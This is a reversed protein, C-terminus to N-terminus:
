PRNLKLTPLNWAERFESLVEWAYPINFSFAQRCEAVTALARPSTTDSATIRLREEDFNEGFLELMTACYYYFAALEKGLRPVASRETMQEGDRPLGILDLMFQSQRLLMKSSLAVGERPSELGSSWRLIRAFEQDDELFGFMIRLTADSKLRLEKGLLLRTLDALEVVRNMHSLDLLSRAARILDRPLGGSFCYCLAVFPIPLGVIRRGLLRRAADFDLYGVKIVEDLASDFVDRFPMGRREFSAIADDSVSILYHCRRMGFIAKIDNIFLQVKDESNIKDLEDIGIIVPRDVAAESAFRRFSGVIEPFTKPRSAWTMSRTFNADAGIPLKLGGSWGSSSSQQFQIERLESQARQRLRERSEEPRRETPRISEKKPEDQRSLEILVYTLLLFALGLLALFSTGLLQILILGSGILASITAYRRFKFRGPPEGLQRNISQVVEQCIEAYLHLIFERAEYEVPAAVLVRFNRPDVANENSCFSRLLTTKGVGRPGSVGISGGHMQSLMDRIQESARTPIEQAPDSLESLGPVRTTDLTTLYSPQRALHDDLLQRIVPLIGKESVAQSLDNTASAVEKQLNHVGIRGQRRTRALRNILRAILRGIIFYSILATLTLSNVAIAFCDSASDEPKASPFRARAIQVIKASVIDLKAGNIFLTLAPGMRLFIYLTVICAALTLATTRLSTKNRTRSEVARVQANALDLQGRLELFARLEPVVSDRIERSKLRATRDLTMSRLKARQVNTKIDAQELSAKLAQPFVDDFCHQVRWDLLSRSGDDIEKALGLWQMATSLLDEM